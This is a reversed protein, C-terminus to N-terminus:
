RMLDRLVSADLGPMDEIAGDGVEQTLDLLADLPDLGSEFCRRNMEVLGGHAYQEFITIVDEERSADLIKLSADAAIALAFLYADDMATQFIDFRIASGADRQKLEIASGRVRGLSAAFMLAKQKTEFLSFGVSDLPSTLRELTSKLEANGPAAIRRDM